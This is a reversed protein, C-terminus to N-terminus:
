GSDTYHIRAVFGVQALGRASIAYVSVNNSILNSVAATTGKMEVNINCKRFISMQKCYNTHTTDANNVIFDNLSYTRDALVNFRQINEMNRFARWDIVPTGTSVATAYIDSFTATAGNPQKDQVVIVRVEDCYNASSAGESPLVCEGRINISKITYKRGIRQSEGTGQDVLAALSTLFQSATGITTNAVTVEAYKVEVNRGTNSRYRRRAVLSGTRLLGRGKGVLVARTGAANAYAAVRRSKGM